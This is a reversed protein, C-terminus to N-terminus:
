FEWRLTLELFDNADFDGLPSGTSGDFVLYKTSLKLNDGFSYDMFVEVAHQQANAVQGRIGIDAADDWVKNTLAFTVGYSEESSRAEDWFLQLNAYLNAFFTRDWGVVMQLLDSQRGAVWTDPAFAIEGRLTSSSLGVAGAANYTRIRVPSLRLQDLRQSFQVPADTYGNFYGLSWDFGEGYVLYRVGGEHAKIDEIDLRILGDARQQRLSHLDTPEWPSGFEPLKVDRGRPLWVAELTGLPLKREVRVLWSPRRSSTRANGIPDRFDVANVRDITSVGDATGWAIRQKGVTVDMAVGDRVLFAERVESRVVDRYDRTRADHEVDVSAFGRWQVEGSMVTQVWKLEFRAQARTSEWGQTETFYQNRSEFYGAWQWTPDVAAAATLDFDFPDNAAHSCCALVWSFIAAVSVNLRRNSM